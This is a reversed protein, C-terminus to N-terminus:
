QYMTSRLPHWLTVPIGHVWLSGSSCTARKCPLGCRMIHADYCSIRSCQAHAPPFTPSIIKKQLFYGQQKNNNTYHVLSKKQALQRPTCCSLLAIASEIGSEWCGSEWCRRGQSIELGTASAAAAVGGVTTRGLSLFTRRFGPTRM